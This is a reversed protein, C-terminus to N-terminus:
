SMRALTLASWGRLVVSMGDLHAVPAKMVGRLYEAISRGQVSVTTQARFYYENAETLGDAFSTGTLASIRAFKYGTGAALSTTSPCPPM